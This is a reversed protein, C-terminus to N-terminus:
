TISSLNHFWIDISRCPTLEYYCVDSNKKLFVTQVMCITYVCIVQLLDMLGSQQKEIAALQKRISSIENKTQSCCAHVPHSEEVEMVTSELSRRNGSSREEAFLPDGGISKLDNRHPPYHSAAMFQNTFDDSAHNSASSYEQKEEMLDYAHGIDEMGIANATVTEVTRTICSSESEESHLNQQIINRTKPVTVDIHWDGNDSKKCREAYNQTRNRSSVPSKRQINATSEKHTVDEWM